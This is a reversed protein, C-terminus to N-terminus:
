PLEKAQGILLAIAAPTYNPFSTKLRNPVRSLCSLVSKTSLRPKQNVVMRVLISRRAKHDSIGFATLRHMSHKLTKDFETQSVGPLKKWSPYQTSAFSNISGEPLMLSRIEDYIIGSLTAPSKQNRM